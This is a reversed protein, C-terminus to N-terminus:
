TYQDVGIYFNRQFTFETSTRHEGRPNALNMAHSLFEQSAENLLFNMNEHLVFFCIDALSFFIIKKAM